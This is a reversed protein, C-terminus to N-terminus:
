GRRLRNLSPSLRLVTDGTQGGENVGLSSLQGMSTTWSQQMSLPGSQRGPRDGPFNAYVLWGTAHEPAVPPVVTLAQGQDNDVATSAGISSEQGRQNVWSVAFELTGAPGVGASSSM